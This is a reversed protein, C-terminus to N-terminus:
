LNGLIRASSAARLVPRPAHPLHEACHQCARVDALLADLQVQSSAVRLLVGDGAIRKVSM